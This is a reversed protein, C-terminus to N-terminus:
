ARVTLYKNSIIRAMRFNGANIYLRYLNCGIARKLMVFDTRRQDLHMQRAVLQKINATTVPVESKGVHGDSKHGTNGVGGQFQIEGDPLGAFTAYILDVM